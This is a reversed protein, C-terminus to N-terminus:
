NNEVEKRIEEIQIPNFHFAPRKARDFYNPTKDLDPFLEKAKKTISKESVKLLMAVGNNTLYGEPAPKYKEFEDKIKKVQEPNFHFIPHRGIDLYNPTKTDLGPFLKSVKLNITKEATGLLSAIKNNTLYGTPAPKYKEFEETIKKVQEPSFHFSPYKNTSLYNPTELDIGPFLETAKRTVTDEHANLLNALRNNTIYGAPAPKYVKLKEAIKEVQEPSFHFSPVRKTNLFNPKELDIDPFIEKAKKLIIEKAIELLVTLKNITLYGEPAPEYKKIEETIKKVQEPSFHFFPRKSEALYNPTELDIGPFLEEAKKAVIIYRVNLLIALGNTTVWGKPAPKYKEFEEAIKKAQEPSFHFSPHKRNDLYNPITTDLYPFLEEAKRTATYHDVGILRALSSKTMWGEPAIQWVGEKEHTLAPGNVTTHIIGINNQLIIMLKKKWEESDFQDFELYSVKGTARMEKLEQKKKKRFYVIEEENQINHIVYTANDEEDNVFVLKDIEPIFIETYSLDRMMSPTNKGIKLEYHLQMETLLEILLRIRPFEKKADIGKGSGTIIEGEGPPLITEEIQEGSDPLHIITEDLPLSTANSKELAKKVEEKAWDKFHFVSGKKDGKGTEEYFEGAGLMRVIENLPIKSDFILAQLQKELKEALASKELERNLEFTDAM